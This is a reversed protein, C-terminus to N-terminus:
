VQCIEEKIRIINSNKDVRSMLKDYEDTFEEEAEEVNKADTKFIMTIFTDEIAYMVQKRNGEAIIADFGDVETAENGINLKLHGNIILTTPIKILAGVLIEGASLIVTRTYVGSHLSHLTQIKAQPLEAVKKEIDMAIAIENDKM